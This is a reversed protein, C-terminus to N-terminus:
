ARARMWYPRYKEALKIEVYKCLGNMPPPNFLAAVDNEFNCLWYGRSMKSKLENEDTIIGIHDLEAKRSHQRAVSEWSPDTPIFKQLRELIVSSIGGQGWMCSVTIANCIKIQEEPTM